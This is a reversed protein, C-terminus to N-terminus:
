PNFAELIGMRVEQTKQWEKQLNDYRLKAEGDNEPTLWSCIIQHGDLSMTVQNLDLHKKALDGLVTSILVKQYYRLSRVKDFRKLREFPPFQDQM